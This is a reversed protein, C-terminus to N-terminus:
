DSDVVARDLSLDASLVLAELLPSWSDLMPSLRVMDVEWTGSRLCGDVNM